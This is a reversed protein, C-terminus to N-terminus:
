PKLALAALAALAAAATSERHKLARRPALSRVTIGNNQKLHARLHEVEPDDRVRNKPSLPDPQGFGERGTNLLSEGAANLTTNVECAADWGVASPTGDVIIGHELEYAVDM